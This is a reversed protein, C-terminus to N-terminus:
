VQGRRRHVSKRCRTKGPEVVWERTGRLCCLRRRAETDAAWSWVQQVHTHGHFVVRLGSEEMVALTQWVADEDRDLRPFLFRWTAGNAVARAADRTTAIQSPMEPTAHCFRAEGARITAPWGGVWSALPAAMRALGSVEWNGFTCLADRARLEAFLRADRGVDGLCILRDVHQQDIDHLVQRLATANDHIDSLIAYRM